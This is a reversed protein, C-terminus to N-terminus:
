DERAPRFTECCTGESDHCERGGDRTNVEIVDAHCKLDRYYVCNSVTCQIDTM